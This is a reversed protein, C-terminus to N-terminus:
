GCSISEAVSILRQERFAGSVQYRAGECSWVITREERFFYGSRDGLAVVEVSRNETLNAAPATENSKVIVLSNLGRTYIQSVAHVTSGDQVTVLHRGETFSFGQPLSADPLALSANAALAGRTGYTELALRGTHRVTATEPPDFRFRRDPIPEDFTVNTVRQTIHTVGRDTALVTEARLQYFTETDFWVTQNRLGTRTRNADIHVVHASRGAVTATGRYELSVNALSVADEADGAPVVPLPSIGVSGPPAGTSSSENLRDFIYRLKREVLSTRDAGEYQRLRVVNTTANYRWITSGNTVYRNGARAPPATTEIRIRNDQPRVLRHNEITLTENPRDYEFVITANVSGLEAFSAAAVEGAPPNEAANPSGVPSLCGVLLGACLGVVVLTAVTRSEPQPIPM